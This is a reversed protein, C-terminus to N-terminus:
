KFYGLKLTKHVRAVQDYDIKDPQYRLLRWGLETLANYKEMDKVFGTGRNHRGGKKGNSWVGGEIEVALRVDPWAYDIRWRRTPHFKVEREPYPSGTAVFLMSLNPSM